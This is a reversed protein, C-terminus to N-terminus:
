EVPIYIDFTAGKNIEGKATIIGNHNDVIKKVIALGIGTGAYDDKTHLRQFMEFIREKFQAEFGIGNDKFSISLFNSKQPLFLLNKPRPEDRSILQTEITIVPPIHPLSFKLSNSILNCILQRFQFVVVSVPLLGVAHITAKKELITDKLDNKVEDLIRHLDTTEYQRETSSIRSFALLDEILRQMRAAAAQMRGLYKQGEDTLNSKEREMMISAFTQIKRLPEQLDHSSIFNFALLEKNANMLETARKEKEGNQFVLENNAILLERTQTKLQEVMDIKEQYDDADKLARNIKQSLGVLNSKAAYDTVGNKILEVANEEGIIGSVIIFPILPMKSQKIRFASAADFAPLSYDALIVDPVFHELASIFTERSQVVESTFNLGSKNLQRYILDADMANDELILIKLEKKMPSNKM